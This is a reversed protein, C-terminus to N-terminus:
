DSEQKILVIKNNATKKYQLGLPLAIAKLALNRDELTFSGTYLQDLDINNTELKVNYQREFEAVVEGFPVSKFSSMHKESWSPVTDNTNGEVIENDILKFTKGAPLKIKKGKYNVSVLGEYCIVEFYNSRQKVSFQTGLVSVTGLWTKVDFQSGKKVKFYAEGVLNVKRNKKWSGKEYQIFSAANLKVTSNDPLQTVKQNGALTKITTTSDYIPAFYVALGVIFIAAVQILPRIWNIPKVPHGVTKTTRKAAIIESLKDYEADVNYSDDAFLKATESIKAYSNYEPMAKFALEETANLEGDLWKQILIEKEM